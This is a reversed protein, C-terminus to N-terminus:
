MIVCEFSIHEYIFQIRTSFLRVCICFTEVVVVMRVFYVVSSNSLDSDNAITFLLQIDSNYILFGFHIM